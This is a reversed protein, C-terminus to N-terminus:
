LPEVDIIDTLPILYLDHLCKASYLRVTLHTITSDVPLGTVCSQSSPGPARVVYRLVQRMQDDTAQVSPMSHPNM